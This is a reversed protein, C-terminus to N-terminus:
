GCRKFARHGFCHVISNSVVLGGPMGKAEGGPGM